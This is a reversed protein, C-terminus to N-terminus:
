DVTVKGAEVIKKRGNALEFTLGKKLYVLRIEYNSGEKAQMNIYRVSVPKGDYKFKYGIAGMESNPFAMNKENFPVVANNDIDFVQLVFYEDMIAERDLNDLDFDIYTYRWDNDNKKVNKLENGGERNRLSVASFKVQTKMMVNSLREQQRSIIATQMEESVKPGSIEQPVQETPSQNIAPLAPLLPAPDVRDMEKQVSNNLVEIKTENKEQASESTKKDEMLAVREHDLKEMKHLLVDREQELEKIKSVNSRGSERLRTIEATLEGVKDDHKQVIQNLKAITGKLAEIKAHLSQNELQLMNVSDKYVQLKAELEASIELQEDLRQSVTIIKRDKNQITQKLESIYGGQYLIVAVLTLAVASATIILPLKKSLSNM